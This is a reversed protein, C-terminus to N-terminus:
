LRDGNRYGGLVKRVDDARLFTGWYQEVEGDLLLGVHLHPSGRAVGSVGLLEGGEVHRPAPDGERQLSELRSLHAYYVHTVQQGKWAIPVDLRFRVCNATDRPGTWLTHGPESYELTGAALAYVPLFNGAIDLGTDAQYGAFVGGPMPNHLGGRLVASRPKGPEPPAPALAPQAAPAPAPPAPPVPPVPAAPSAAPSAAPLPMALFAPPAVAPLRSPPVFVAAPEAAPLGACGAALTVLLATILALPTTRMRM